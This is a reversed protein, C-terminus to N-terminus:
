KLRELKKDTSNNDAVILEIQEKPYSQALVSKLCNEINSKENKTTIIVSVLPNM